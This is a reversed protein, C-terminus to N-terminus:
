NTAMSIDEVVNKKFIIDTILQEVRSNARDLNHAYIHTSNVDTHRAFSQTEQMTAGSLLAFTVATHRLSHATLRHSDFGAQRLRKKVIKSISQSTLRKNKTKNSISIFLAETQKTIKGVEKM